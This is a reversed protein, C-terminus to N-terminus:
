TIDTVTVHYPFKYLFLILEYYFILLFAYLLIFHILDYCNHQERKDTLWGDHVVKKQNHDDQCDCTKQEQIAHITTAISIFINGPDLHNAVSLQVWKHSSKSISSSTPDTSFWSKADTEESSVKLTPTKCKMLNLKTFLNAVATDSDSDDTTLTSPSGSKFFTTSGSTHSLEPFCHFFPPHHSPCYGVDDNLLIVGSKAPAISTTPAPPPISTTFPISAPPPISAAFSTTHISFDLTTSYHITPATFTDQSLDLPISSSIFPGIYSFDTDNFHDFDFMENLNFNWTEDDVGISYPQSLNKEM